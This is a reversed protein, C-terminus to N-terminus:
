IHILSLYSKKNMKMIDERFLEFTKREGISEFFLISNKEKSSKIEVRAILVFVLHVIGYVLIGISVTFFCLYLWTSIKNELFLKNFLEGMASLSDSTFIITLLVGILALIISAISDCSNIWNNVRELSLRAEEIQEDINLKEAM